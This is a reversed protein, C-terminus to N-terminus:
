CIYMNLVAPTNGFISGSVAWPDGHRSGVACSLLHHRAVGIAFPDPCQPCDYTKHSWIHM